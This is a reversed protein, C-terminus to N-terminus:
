RGRGSRTPRGARSSFRHDRGLDAHREGVPALFPQGCAGGRGIQGFRDARAEGLRGDGRAHVPLHPVQRARQGVAHLDRDERVLVRLCQVHQAVRGGVHEGGRHALEERVGLDSEPGRDLVAEVVVELDRRRERRVVELPDFGLHVLHHFGIVREHALLHVPRLRLAAERVVRELELADLVQPRVLHDGDIGVSREDVQAAPRVHRARPLDLM